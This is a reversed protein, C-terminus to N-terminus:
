PCKTNGFLHSDIYILTLLYVFTYLYIHFSTFLHLFRRTDTRCPNGHQIIQHLCQRCSTALEQSLSSQRATAPSDSRRHLRPSPIELDGFKPMIGSNFRCSNHVQHTSTFAIAQCSRIRSKQHYSYKPNSSM